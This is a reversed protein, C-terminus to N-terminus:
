GEEATPPPPPLAKLVIRRCYDSAFVGAARAAAQVRRKDDATFYVAVGYRCREEEPKPPQGPGHLEHNM